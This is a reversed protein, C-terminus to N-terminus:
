KYVAVWDINCPWQYGGWVFLPFHQSDAASFAGILGVSPNSDTTSSYVLDSSRVFIGDFYSAKYGWTGGNAAQSLNLTNYRHMNTSVFAPFTPDPPNSNVAGGGHTSDGPHWDHFSSTISASGVGGPQAEAQDIEIGHGGAPTGVFGEISLTWLPLPWPNPNSSGLANAQSYSAVVETLMPLAFVTGVYGSGGDTAATLLHQKFDTAFNAGTGTGTLAQITLVSGALSFNSTPTVTFQRLFSFGGSGNWANPWNGHRYWNYGPARTDGMDITATSTFDDFFVQGSLDWAHTPMLNQRWIKVDSVGDGTYTRNAAGAGAGNDLLVLLNISSSNDSLVDVDCRYWGDGFATILSGVGTIGGTASSQGRAVGNALDFLYLCLSTFGSNQFGVQIRTRAGAKAFVSFRYPINAQALVNLSQQVYHADLSTSEVLSTATFSGDPASFSGSRSSHQFSWVSQTYDPASAGFSPSGEVGGYILMNLRAVVVPYFPPPLAISAGPMKRLSIQVQGIDYDLAQYMPANVFM